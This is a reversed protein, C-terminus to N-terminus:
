FAGLDLQKEDDTKGVELEAGGIQDRSGVRCRVRKGLGILEQVIWARGAGLSM